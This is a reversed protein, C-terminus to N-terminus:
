HLSKQEYLNLNESHKIRQFRDTGAIAIKLMSLIVFFATIFVYIGM